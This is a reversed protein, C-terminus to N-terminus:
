KTSSVEVVRLIMGTKEVEMRFANQYQYPCGYLLIPLLGIYVSSGYLGNSALPVCKIVRWASGRHGHLEM